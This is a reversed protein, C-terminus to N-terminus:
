GLREQKSAFIYNYKCKEKSLNWSQKMSQVVVDSSRTDQRVRVIYHATNSNSVDKSLDPTNNSPDYLLQCGQLEDADRAQYFVDNAASFQGCLDATNKLYSSAEM